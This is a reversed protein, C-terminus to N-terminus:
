SDEGDAAELIVYPIMTPQNIGEDEGLITVQHEIAVVVMQSGRQPTVFEGVRPIAPAFVGHLPKRVGETTDVLEMYHLAGLWDQEPQRVSKLTSGFGGRGQAVKLIGDTFRGSLTCFKMVKLAVLEDVGESRLRDKISRGDTSQKGAEVDDLLDEIAEEAERSVGFSEKEESLVSEFGHLLGFIRDASVSEGGAWRQLRLLEALLRSFHFEANESM